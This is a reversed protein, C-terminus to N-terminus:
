LVVNIPKWSSNFYHEYGRSRKDIKFNSVEFVVVKCDGAIAGASLVFICVKVSSITVNKDRLSKDKWVGQM